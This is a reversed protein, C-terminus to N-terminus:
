QGAIRLHHSPTTLQALGLPLCRQQQGRRTAAPSWAGPPVAPETSFAIPPRIRRTAQRGPQNITRNKHLMPEPPLVGPLGMSLGNRLAPYQHDGEAQPVQVLALSCSGPGQVPVPLVALVGRGFKQHILDALDHGTQRDRPLQLPAAAEEEIAPLEPLALVGEPTQFVPRMASEMGGIDDHM